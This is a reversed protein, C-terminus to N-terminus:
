KNTEVIFRTHERSIFPTWYDLTPGVRFPAYPAAKYAATATVDNQIEIGWRMQHLQSVTYGLGLYQVTGGDALRLEIRAFLPPKGDLLRNYDWQGMTWGIIVLASISVWAFKKIKMIEIQDNEPQSSPM